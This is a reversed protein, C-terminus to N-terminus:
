IVDRLVVDLYRKFVEPSPSEVAERPLTNWHRVVGKSFLNKRIVLRFRGQHLRLGNGRTRDSTVCFLSVGVEACGLKQSNYLTILSEESGGRRL